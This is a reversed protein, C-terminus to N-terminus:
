YMNIVANCGNNGLMINCPSTCKSLQWMSFLEGQGREGERAMSECMYKWFLSFRNNEYVAGDPFSTHKYEVSGAPLSLLSFSSLCVFLVSYVQTSTVLKLFKFTIINMPWVLSDKSRVGVLDSSHPPECSASFNKFSRWM